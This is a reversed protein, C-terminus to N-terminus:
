KVGDREYDESGDVEAGDVACISFEHHHAIAQPLSVTKEKM